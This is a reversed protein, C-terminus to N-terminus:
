AAAKQTIFLFVELRVEGLPLTGDWFPRSPVKRGFTAESACGLQSIVSRAVNQGVTVGSGGGFVLVLAARKGKVPDLRQRVAKCVSRADAGTVRGSSAAAANFRITIKSPDTKMGIIPAIKPKEPAPPPPPPPTYRIASGLGVIFLM